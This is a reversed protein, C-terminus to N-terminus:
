VPKEMHVATETYGLSLYLRRAADNGGFVNLAVKPLGRRRAEAEAFEMAARGLGRGRHGPDVEVGYVFLNRGLDDSREALWLIGAPEGGDVIAYIFHGPTDLGNTLLRPFDQEAKANAVDADVGAAIMDGVYTARAREVFSPYEDPRLLRLPADSV